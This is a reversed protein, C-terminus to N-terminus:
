DHEKGLHLEFLPDNKKPVMRLNTFLFFFLPKIISKLRGLCKIPRLQHKMCRRAKKLQMVIYRSVADMNEMNQGLFLLPM